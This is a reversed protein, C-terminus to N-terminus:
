DENSIRSVSMPAPISSVVTVVPPAIESAVKSGAEDLVDGLVVRAGEATFQRAEAAGMGRAAGSIIAVKGELRKGM